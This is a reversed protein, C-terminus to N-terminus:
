LGMKQALDEIKLCVWKSGIEKLFLLIEDRNALQGSAL